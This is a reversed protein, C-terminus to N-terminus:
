PTAAAIGAFMAAGLILYLVFVLVMIVMSIIAAIGLMLYHAQLAGIGNELSETNGTTLYAEIESAAKVLWYGLLIPYWGVVIGIISLCHLAGGVIQLIGLFKMWTKLSNAKSMGIPSLAPSGQGQRLQVFGPAAGYPNAMALGKAIEQNDNASEELLAMGAEFSPVM